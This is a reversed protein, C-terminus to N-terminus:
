LDLHLFTCFESKEYDSFADGEVFGHKRYLQLAADFPAGSGTELSLRRLGKARAERLIHVLMQEGVGKRLHDPHTRMSKIEGVSSDHMKLAGCGALAAGDWLTYFSIGPTQLGSWDLAFSHGPPSSEHMGRLHLELLAKVSPNEFDGPIIRMAVSHRM